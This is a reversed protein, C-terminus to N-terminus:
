FVALESQQNNFSITALQIVLYLILNHLLNLDCRYLGFSNLLFTEGFLHLLFSISSHLSM